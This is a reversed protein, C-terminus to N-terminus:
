PQTLNRLIPRSGMERIELKLGQNPELGPGQYRTRTEKKTGVQIEFKTGVNKTKYDKIM